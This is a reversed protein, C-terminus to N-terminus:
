ESCGTTWDRDRGVRKGTGRTVFWRDGRWARGVRTRSCDRDAGRDACIGGEREREREGEKEKKEKRKEMKWKRKKGEEEKGEREGEEKSETEGVGRAGSGSRARAGRWSPWARVGSRCARGM